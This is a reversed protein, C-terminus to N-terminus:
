DRISEPVVEFFIAQKRSVSISAGFIMIELPDGGIAAHEFRVPAGEILGLVMLRVVGQRSADIQKILATQGPKLDALTV